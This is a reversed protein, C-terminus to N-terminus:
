PRDTGAATFPTRFRATISAFDALKAKSGDALPLSDYDFDTYRATLTAPDIFAPPPPSDYPMGALWPRGDFNRRILSPLPLREWWVGKKIAIAAETDARSRAGLAILMGSLEADVAANFGAGPGGSALALSGILTGMFNSTLDEPSFASFDQSLTGFTRLEHSWSDVYAIAQATAIPDAPKKPLTATGERCPIRAYGAVIADHVYKTLDVHDRM